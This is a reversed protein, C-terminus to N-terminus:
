NMVTGTPEQDPLAKVWGEYRIMFRQSTFVNIRARHDPYLWAQVRYLESNHPITFRMLYSKSKEDKEIEFDDPVGEFTIGRDSNYGGAMQREGYYPLYASVSDGEMRLYNANGILSIRGLNNGPALLGANAVAAMGSTVQPRAWESEIEFSRNTVWEDLQRSKETEVVEKTTGCGFVVVLLVLYWGKNM